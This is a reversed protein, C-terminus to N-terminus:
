KKGFLEKLELTKLPGASAPSEGYALHLKLTAPEFVMTQLTLSGLNAAHLQKHIEEIGIKGEVKRLKELTNFRDLTYALNEPEGVKLEVDCFHNTCIGLGATPMRKVVKDPSIEFVAVGNKDAVVLNNLSTRKMGSLAKYAEDITTCEELLRRYNLAYPVAEPNFSREGPKVQVVELVALTLGADNMGSLCGLLGPFGVSAFAHKDKPKYVTVLTHNHIYGLSPYDLNRGLLPGGTQSKGPEVLVASCAIVGKLDFMTNAAILTELPVGSAKGITELEEKSNAPFQTKYMGKGLTVILGWLGDADVVRLLDRPYEMARKGPLLALKGIGTGIETPTGEVTLVPLTNIIRLENKGDKAESFRFPTAPDAALLFLPLVLICLALRTRVM